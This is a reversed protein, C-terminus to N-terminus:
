YTKVIKVVVKESHSQLRCFYVGPKLNKLHYNKSQGTESLSNGSELESILKGHLNYVNLSYPKNSKLNVSITIENKFPNPYCYLAPGESNSQFLPTNTITPELNFFELIRALLYKKTSPPSNDNLAFFDINSGITKYNEAEYAVMCGHDPNSTHLLTFAPNISTLYYNYYAVNGIYEFEMNETFSGIIGFISDHYTWTTSEVQINFMPHIVTQPDEYWTVGGEMYINRGDGLFEMLTEGEGATLVHNIFKRGLFVMLNQYSDLNDPIFNIYDYYVELDDLLTTVVPGNLMQPDLDIVLLPFRGILLTFQETVIIGPSASITLEFVVQHGQPANENVVIFLTDNVSGGAPINGYNLPNTGTITIYPDNILIETIVNMASSHGFNNVYFVIGAAEGPDLKGNDNDAVIPSNIKLIPAYAELSMTGEILESGSAFNVQFDLAYNDPIFPDAIFSFADPLLITEGANIAPVIEINDLLEIFLDFIDITIELDNIALAGINTIEFDLHAEEGYDIRNDGGSNVTYEFLINESLQFSRTGTIENKDSAQVIIDYIKNESIEDTYLLGSDNIALSSLFNKPIFTIQTSGNEPFINTFTSTQYNIGDGSSLGSIRQLYEEDQNELFFFDMKGDQFLVATFDVPFVGNENTVRAKWRFSAANEDGEYWVGNEPGSFILDRNLFVALMPDYKFLGMDIQQYPLPFTTNNFNIFGDVHISLTDYTKGYFPFPFDISQVIFGSNMGGSMLQEGQIDPYDVASQNISYDTKLNWSYPDDGGSANIQCSYPQGPIIPNLEDTDVQVKDFNLSHVVSAMTVGNEILPIDSVPSPIETGGNQYDMLAFYHLMGNAVNMPDYEHVQLFFKAPEGPEIFSLLSTVDLGFIITKHSELSDNGQMYHDGGQYNFGPFEITNQPLLDNTDASVGAIVKIRKRSSHKLQVKYTIMPAYNEKVDIVHVNKNWIGGNVKEEALVKYMVYSFGSDAFNVGHSNSIKVGGIEWDKVNIIDDGNIDLDTTYIGDNNYDWRISDNWGVITMSHGNYLGFATIVSKGEEPTGPPLTTVEYLDTYFNALGGNDSGNLHDNMWHKLTLIGDEEAVSIAYIEDVKNL